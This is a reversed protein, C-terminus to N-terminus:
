TFLALSSTSRRTFSHNKRVTLELLEIMFRTPWIRTTVKALALEESTEYCAYVRGDRVPRELVANYQHLRKSQRDEFDWNMGMWKLDKRISEEFSASTRETDTDDIRLMFQAGKKRAFLYNILATRLNGVHLEGTPSPAFRVKMCTM